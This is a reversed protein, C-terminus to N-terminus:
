AGQRAEGERRKRRSEVAYWLNMWLGRLNASITVGIWVGYLGLSTRSLVWALVPKLANTSIVVV